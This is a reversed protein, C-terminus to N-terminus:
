LVDHISLPAECPPTTLSGKYSFHKGDAPLLYYPSFPNGDYASTYVPGGNVASIKGWAPALMLNEQSGGQSLCTHVCM